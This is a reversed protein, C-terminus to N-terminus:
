GICCMQCAESLGFQPRAVHEETVLGFISSTAWGALEAVMNRIKLLDPKERLPGESLSVCNHIDLKWIGEFVKKRLVSPSSAGIRGQQRMAMTFSKMCLPLGDQVVFEKLCILM